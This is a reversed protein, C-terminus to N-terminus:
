VESHIMIGQLAQELASQHGRGRLKQNLLGPCLGLIQMNLLNGSESAAPGLIVSLVVRKSCKEFRLWLDPAGPSATLGELSRRVESDRHSVISILAPYSWELPDQPM